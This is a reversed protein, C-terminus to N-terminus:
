KVYKGLVGLMTRHVRQTRRVGIFFYEGMQLSVLKFYILHSDFAYQAQLALIVPLVNQTDSFNVVSTASLSYVQGM